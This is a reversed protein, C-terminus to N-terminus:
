EEDRRKGCFPCVTIKSAEARAVPWSKGCSDCVAKVLDTRKIVPGSQTLAKEPHRVMDLLHTRLKVIYEAGEEGMSVIAEAVDPRAELVTDMLRIASINELYGAYRSATDFGEVPLAPFKGEKVMQKLQELTYGALYETLGKVIDDHAYELALEFM